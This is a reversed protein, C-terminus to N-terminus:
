GHGCCTRYGADIASVPSICFSLLHLELWMAMCREVGWNSDVLDSSGDDVQPM